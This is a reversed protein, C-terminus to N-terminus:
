PRTVAEIVQRLFSMLRSQYDALSLGNVARLANLPKRKDQQFRRPYHREISGQPLIYLNLQRLARLAAQRDGRAVSVQHRLLFEASWWGYADADLMMIFPIHFVNLIDM